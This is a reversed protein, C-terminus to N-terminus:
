KLKAKALISNATKVQQAFNVTGRNKLAEDANKVFAQAAKNELTPISKIAIAM